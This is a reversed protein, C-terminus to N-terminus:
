TSDVKKLSLKIRWNIFEDTIIRGHGAEEVRFVEITQSKPQRRIRWIGDDNIVQKLWELFGSAFNICMNANWTKVGRQAATIPISETKIEEIKTLIGRQSRFGVIIRPVGLLFSQIWFKMLKREFNAMGRDDRIEASTKLEVWNIPAGHAMPKSDWLADVEGGLCMITKGFGTRVVSCYQAKNSVVQEDRSEIYDRSTEAWTAPLTSLTEFKYGWFSMVDPSFQPQSQGGRKAQKKQQKRQEKMSAQKYEHNEEIFSICDKNNLDADSDRVQYLTANMEFGDRDEFPSSMIKTIMGRWTVIQADIKKGEEEEHAMITRLLSDLHEDASDDHKDFKDFGKSLDTGLQPPYYWKMSSYGLHFEHNDDYSFCAIEKPRKVPHSDGAFRAVPQINFKSM